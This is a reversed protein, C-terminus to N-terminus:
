PAAGEVRVVRSDVAITGVAGDRLLAPPAGDSLARVLAATPRPGGDPAQEWPEASWAVGFRQAGTVSDLAFGIVQGDAKAHVTGAPVPQGHFVELEGDAARFLYAFGERDTTTRLLLTDSPSATAGLAVPVGSRMLSLGLEVNATTSHLAAGKLRLEPAAPGPWAFAGVALVAAAAVAPAWRRADWRRADWRRRPLETVLSGEGRPEDAGSAVTAALIREIAADSVDFSPLQAVLADLEADTPVDHTM